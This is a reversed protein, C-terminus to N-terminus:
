TERIWRRAAAADLFEDIDSSRAQNRTDRLIETVIQARDRSGDCLQLIAAAVRNLQVNGEPCVLVLTADREGRADLRIGPALCIRGRPASDNTSRV